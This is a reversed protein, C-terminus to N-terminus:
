VADGYVNSYLLVGYADRKQVNQGTWDRRTGRYISRLKEEKMMLRISKENDLFWDIPILGTVASTKSSPPFHIQLDSLKM